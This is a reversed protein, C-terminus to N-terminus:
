VFWFSSVGACIVPITFNDDIGVSFLETIAGCASVTIVLLMLSGAGFPVPVILLYILSVMMSVGFFTGTGVYSKERWLKKRGWRKGALMAFPDGFALVLLGLCLATKPVTATMITLALLYYTASNTRYREHPRSIMGFVKDVLFDNWRKSFRRTIELSGFFGLFLLLITMAQGWSLFLEYLLVCGLGMLMHFANRSYNIPKLHRLEFDTQQPKWDIAKLHQVMDEYSRALEKRKEKFRRVRPKEALERAFERLNRDLEDIMEAMSHQAEALKEKLERTKEALEESYESVSEAWSRDSLRTKQIDSIYSYFEQLMLEISINLDTDNTFVAEM